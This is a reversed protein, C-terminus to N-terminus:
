LDIGCRGPGGSGVLMSSAILYNAAENYHAFFGSIMRPAARSSRFIPSYGPDHVQIGIAVLNAPRLMAIGWILVREARSDGMIGRVSVFAGIALLASSSGGAWVRCGSFDMRAIRVM